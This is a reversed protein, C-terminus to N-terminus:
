LALEWYQGVLHHGFSFHRDESVLKFGTKEYIHRATTLIDNTWLTIKKYGKLRAFKICEEVLRRGLGLGRVKPDV